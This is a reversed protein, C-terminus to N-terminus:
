VAGGDVAANNTFACDVIQALNTSAAVAGGRTRSENGVFVCNTVFHPYLLAGGNHVASNYEFLSDQTVKTQLVAGGETAVNNTFYCDYVALTHGGGGQGQAKNNRFVCNSVVAYNGKYWGHQIGAGGGDAVNASTNTGNQITLNHFRVGKKNPLLNFVSRAYKADLVM